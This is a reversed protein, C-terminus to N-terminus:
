KNRWENMEEHSFKERRLRNWTVGRRVVKAPAGAIATHEDEFPKNVFAGAGVITDSPIVSGKNLIVGLGVWVHDGIIVDGPTNLRGGTEIDIVSHADTTRVEIERSLMCHRGIRVNCGEQCLIYVGVTTSYDGFEVIQDNGKVLIDGRYHCDKGIRIINRDGSIRITGSFVSEAGIEIQNKVGRIVRLSGSLAKTHSAFVNSEHGAEITFKPKSQKIEQSM